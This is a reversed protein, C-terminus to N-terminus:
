MVHSLYEVGNIQDMTIINAPLESIPACTLLSALLEIQKLCKILNLATASRNKKASFVKKGEHTRLMEQTVM